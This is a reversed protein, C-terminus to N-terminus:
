VKEVNTVKVQQIPNWIVIESLDGNLYAFICDHGKIEGLKKFENGILWGSRDNNKEMMNKAKKEDMGLEVFVSVYGKWGKEMKLPNKIDLFSEVLYGGGSGEYGGKNGAYSIAEEKSPTFYAGVGLEGKRSLISKLGNWYGGHYVPGYKFESDFKPNAHFYKPKDELSELIIAKLNIM